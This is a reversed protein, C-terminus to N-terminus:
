CCGEIKVMKPQFVEFKFLFRIQLCFKEMKAPISEPFLTNQCM